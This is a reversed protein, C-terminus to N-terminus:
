DISGRAWLYVAAPRVSPDVNQRSMRKAMNVFEAIGGSKGASVLYNSISLEPPPADLSEFVGDSEVLTRWQDVSQNSGNAMFPRNHMGFYRYINRDVSLGPSESSFISVFSKNLNGNGNNATLDRWLLNQSFVVNRFVQNEGPQQFM